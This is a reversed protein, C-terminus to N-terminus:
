RTPFPPLLLNADCRARPPPPRTTTATVTVSQGVAADTRYHHTVAPISSSSSPAPLCEKPPNVSSRHRSGPRRTPSPGRQRPARRSNDTHARRSVVVAPATLRAPLSCRVVNLATSLSASFALSYLVARPASTRVDVRRVKCWFFSRRVSARQTVFMMTKRETANRENRSSNRVWSARGLTNTGRKCADTFAAGATWEPLARGVSRQAARM